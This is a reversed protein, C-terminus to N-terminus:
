KGCLMIYNQFAKLIGIDCIYIILAPAKISERAPFMSIYIKLERAFLPFIRGNRLTLSFRSLWQMVITADWRRTPVWQWTCTRHHAAPQDTGAATHISRVRAKAGWMGISYACATVYGNCARVYASPGRHTAFSGVLSTPSLISSLTASAPLRALYDKNWTSPWLDPQHYIKMIRNYLFNEYIEILGVKAM